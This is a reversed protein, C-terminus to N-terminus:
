RLRALLAAKCTPWETALMSYAATDRIAGASGPRAMRLVGDLVAGLRLIAERCRVNRADTMLSVRHVQWEEFAYTLMLLKAEVNIGTRQAAPDLWTWGIEVADPRDRLRRLPHDAPWAWREINGFRTSGVVRGTAREITAFPVAKGDRADALASDVYSRMATADDPVFTLAFAERGRCAVELLAPLHAHELPELQVLRGQFRLPEIVVPGARFCVQHTVSM